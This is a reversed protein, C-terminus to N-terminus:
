ICKHANEVKEHGAAMVEDYTEYGCKSCTYKKNPLGSLLAWVFLGIVGLGILAM